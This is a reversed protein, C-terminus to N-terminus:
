DKVCDIVLNTFPKNREVAVASTKFGVSKLFKLWDTKKRYNIKEEYLKGEFLFPAVFHDTVWSIIYKLTIKIDVEVIILKGKKNLIQYCKRILREQDAFSTLHHLVHFIVVCDCKPLVATLVNGKRFTVNGTEISAQRVRKIDRDIGLIKRSPSALAWLNTLIGEGCGLDVITGSRPILKEVEWSPSEWIRIRSFWKKWGASKYYSIVRNEIVKRKNM